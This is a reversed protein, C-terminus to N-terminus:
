NGHGLYICVFADHKNFDVDSRNKLNKMLKCIAAANIQNQIEVYFGLQTFIDKLYIVEKVFGNKLKLCNQNTTANNIILCLGRPDSQM